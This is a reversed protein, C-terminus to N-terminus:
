MSPRPPFGGFRLFVERGGPDKQLDIASRLIMGATYGEVPVGERAASVAAEALESRQTKGHLAHLSGFGTATTPVPVSRPGIPEIAAGPQCALEPARSLFDVAEIRGDPLRVLASGHGGLGSMFPEVVGITLAAEIFADVANGGKGLRAAGAEAARPHMATVLGARTAITSQVMTQISRNM